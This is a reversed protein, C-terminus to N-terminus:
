EVDAFVRGTVNGSSATSIVSIAQTPNLIIKGSRGASHMMEKVSIDAVLDTIAGEEITFEHPIKLGSQTGSPIFLDSTSGDTFLVYSQGTNPGNNTNGSNDGSGNNPNNGPDKATSSVTDDEATAVILRIQNYTGTPLKKEGLLAEDFRLKLLDFEKAGGTDSFDNVVTWEETEANCVQVEKFTVFVSEVDNVPADALSLSLFGDGNTALDDDTVSSSGSSSCGSIVLVLTLIALLPLLKKQKM